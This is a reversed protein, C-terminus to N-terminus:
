MTLRIRLISDLIKQFAPQIQAADAAEYYNAPSSACSRLLNANGNIVRITYVTVNNAAKLNACAAQTRANVPISESMGNGDWRNQTNTGDTLAVIFKRTDTGFADAGTFPSNQTLTQMGWVLGVTFNTAGGATMADIATKLTTTAGTATVDTLGIIPRLSSAACNVAPHTAGAASTVDWPQDRDAVCGNWAYPAASLWGEGARTPSVRVQTAFPVISVKIEGTMTAKAALADVFTKAAKQLEVMKNLSAMSGTNDLVLAVEIKPTGFAVTSSSAVPVQTVGALKMLTTPVASSASLTLRRTAADLAVTLVPSGVGKQAYYVAEFYAQGRAALQAQTLTRADQALALGTADLAVGIATKERSARSYDIAAGAMLVLPIVSIGFMLAVAGDDARRFTRFPSSLSMM